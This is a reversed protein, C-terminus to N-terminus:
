CWGTRRLRRVLQLGRRHIPPGWPGLICRATPASLRVEDASGHDRSWPGPPCPVPRRILLRPRQLSRQSALDGGAGLDAQLLPQRRGVGTLTGSAVNWSEASPGCRRRGSWGSAPWSCRGRPHGSRRRPLAWPRGGLCCSSRPSSGCLRRRRGPGAQRAACSALLRWSARSAARRRSVRGGGPRTIRCWPAAGAPAAGNGHEPTSTPM